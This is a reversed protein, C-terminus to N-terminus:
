SAPRSPFRRTPEPPLPNQPCPNGPPYNFADYKKEERKSKLVTLGINPKTIRIFVDGCDVKSVTRGNTRSATFFSAFPPPLLGTVTTGPHM